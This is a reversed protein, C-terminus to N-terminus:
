SIKEMKKKFKNSPPELEEDQPEYDFVESPAELVAMVEPIGDEEDSLGEIESEDGYASDLIMQGIEEPTRKPINTLWFNTFM